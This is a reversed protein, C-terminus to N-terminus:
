VAVRRRALERRLQRLDCNCPPRRPELVGRGQGGIVAIVVIDEIQDALRLHHRDRGVWGGLRFLGLRVLVGVEDELVTEVTGVRAVVIASVEEELAVLPAGTSGSVDGADVEVGVGLV